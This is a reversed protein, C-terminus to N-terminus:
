IAAVALLVAVVAITMAIGVIMILIGLVNNLINFIDVIVLKIFNPKLVHLVINNVLINIKRSNKRRIM